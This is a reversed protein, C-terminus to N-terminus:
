SIILLSILSFCFALVAFLSLRRALVGRFINLCCIFAYLFWIVYLPWIAHKSGSEPIQEASFIGVALLVVGLIMLRFVAKALNNMPPLHYFLTELKGLRVQREQLLFMAGSISAMGFAGYSLLSIAIHLETWPEVTNSSAALVAAEQDFPAIIAILCILFVLPSTFVGMLSIRYSSGFLLYIIVMAWSIFILIEILDTVPCRGHIKGREALFMSQFVVGFFMALSNWISKKYVGSRLCMMAYIFGGCFFVAAITLYLRDM